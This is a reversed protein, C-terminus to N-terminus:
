LRKTALYTIFAFLSSSFIIFLHVITASLFSLERDAGLLILFGGFGSEYTGIGAIGHIPLVTTLDAVSFALFSSSLSIGLSPPIITFFALFKFFLTIVTLAYIGALNRFKLRHYYNIVETHKIKKILLAVPFFIFPSLVFALVGLLPIDLYVFYFLAFMGVMGIGDFVRTTIFSLTTQGLSIGEKKLMYFFSLEGVRFPLIINFFTNFVTIRFLKKFDKLDLSLSWRVTRVVYSGLYLLLALLFQDLTISKFLVLLKDFGIFKDFFYVFGSTILLSVSLQFLKKKDIKVM